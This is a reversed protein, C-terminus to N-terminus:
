SRGAMASYKSMVVVPDATRSAAVKYDVKPKQVPKGARLLNQYVSEPVTFVKTLGTKQTVLRYQKGSSSLRVGYVDGSELKVTTKGNGHILNKGNHGTFKLWVYENTTKVRATAEANTNAPYTLNTLTQNLEKFKKGMKEAEIWVSVMGSRGPTQVTAKYVSKGVRVLVADGEKPQQNLEKYSKEGSKLTAMSSKPYTVKYPDSGALVLVHKIGSETLKASVTQISMNM